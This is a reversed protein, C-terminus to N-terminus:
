VVPHQHITEDSFRGIPASVAVSLIAFHRSARRAFAINTEVLETMLRRNHTLDILVDAIQEVVNPQIAGPPEDLLMM